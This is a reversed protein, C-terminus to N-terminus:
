PDLSIWMAPRVCGSGSDIRNGNLRVCGELDVCFRNDPQMGPLNVNLLLRRLAAKRRIRRSRLVTQAPRNKM